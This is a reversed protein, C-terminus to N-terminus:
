KRKRFIKVLNGGKGTTIETVYEFGTEMLKVAEDLNEAVRVTFEDNEQFLAEGLQIYILTCEISKHGLFRKVYLIDKTQHYLMTAKWHRLTHFHIQLLRPKGLKQAM